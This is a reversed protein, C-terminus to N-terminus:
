AKAVAWEYWTKEKNEYWNSIRAFEKLASEGAPVGLRELDILKNLTYINGILWGVELRALEYEVLECLNKYSVKKEEGAKLNWIIYPENEVRISFFGLEEHGGHEGDRVSPRRKKKITKRIEVLAEASPISSIKSMHKTKKM